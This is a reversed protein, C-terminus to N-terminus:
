KWTLKQHLVEIGTADIDETGGSVYLNRYKFLVAAVVLYAYVLYKAGPYKELINKIVYVISLIIFPVISFFHYIFAIRPVLIWPLYQAAIATFFLFHYRITGDAFHPYETPFNSGFSFSRIVALHPAFDSFVSL